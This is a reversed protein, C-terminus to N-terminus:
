QAAITADHRAAVTAEHHRANARRLQEAADDRVIRAEDEQDQLREVKRRERAPMLAPGGGGIFTGHRPNLEAAALKGLLDKWATDAADFAAQCQDLAATAEIVRTDNRVAESIPDPTPPIVTDGTLGNAQCWYGRAVDRCHGEAKNRGCLHCNKNTNM